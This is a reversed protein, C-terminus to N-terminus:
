LLEYSISSHAKRISSTDLHEGLHPVHELYLAQETTGRRGMGKEMVIGWRWAETM